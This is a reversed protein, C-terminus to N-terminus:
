AESIGNGRTSPSIRKAGTVSTSWCIVSSALIPTCCKLVTLLTRPGPSRVQKKWETLDESISPFLEIPKIWKLRRVQQVGCPIDDVDIEERVLNQEYM